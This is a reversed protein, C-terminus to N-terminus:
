GEMEKKMRALLDIANSAYRSIWRDYIEKIPLANLYNWRVRGERRVIILDARELVRLHQMVTCRDHEAFRECLEGTTRPQSKLVDLIDRRTENALAKFILAQRERQKMNYLYLM